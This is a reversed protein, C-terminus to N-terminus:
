FRRVYPVNEYAGVPFEFLVAQANLITHVYELPYCLCCETVTVPEQYESEAFQLVDSVGYEASVIHYRVSDTVLFAVRCSDQFGYSYLTDNTRSHLAHVRASVKFAPLCRGASDQYSMVIRSSPCPQCIETECQDSKCSSLSTAVLTFALSFAVFVTFKSCM